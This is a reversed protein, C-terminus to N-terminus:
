QIARPSPLPTPVPGAPQPQAQPPNKGALARAPIPVGVGSPGVVGPIPAAGSRSTTAVPGSPISVKPGEQARIPAFAALSLAALVLLKTSRHLIVLM